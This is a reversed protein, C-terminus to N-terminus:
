LSRHIKRKRCSIIVAGNWYDTRTCVCDEPKISNIFYSIPKALRILPYYHNLNADAPLLLRSGPDFTPTKALGGASLTRSFPYFNKESIIM